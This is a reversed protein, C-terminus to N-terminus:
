RTRKSLYITFIRNRLIIRNKRQKKTFTERASHTFGPQRLHMELM